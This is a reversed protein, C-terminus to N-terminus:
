PKLGLRTRLVKVPDRAGNFNQETVHKIALYGGWPDPNTEYALRMLADATFPLAREAILTDIARAANPENKHSGIGVM